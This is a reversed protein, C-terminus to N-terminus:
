TESCIAEGCVAELEAVVRAAQEIAADIATRGTVERIPDRRGLSALRADLMSREAKLVALVRRADALLGRLSSADGNAPTPDGPSDRPLDIEVVGDPHVLRLSPDRRAAPLPDGRNLM